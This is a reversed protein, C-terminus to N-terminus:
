VLVSIPSTFGHLPRPDDIRVHTIGLGHYVNESHLVTILADEWMLQTYIWFVLRLVFALGMLGVLWPDDLQLSRVLGAPKESTRSDMHYRHTIKRAKSYEAGVASFASRNKEQICFNIKMRLRVKSSEDM